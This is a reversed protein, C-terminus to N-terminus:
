RSLSHSRERDDEGLRQHSPIKEFFPHRLADGLCIRQSPDYELMREMLDFLQAHEEDDAVKYRQFLFFVGGTLCSWFRHFTFYFNCIRFWM